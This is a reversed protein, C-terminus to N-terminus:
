HEREAYSATNPVGVEQGLASAFPVQQGADFLDRLRCGIWQQFRWTLYRTAIEERSEPARWLTCGAPTSVWCGIGWRELEACREDSRPVHPVLIASEGAFWRNASAQFLVERSASLKAEIAILRRIDLLGALPRLAWQTGGWTVVEEVLGSEVLAAMRRAAERGRLGLLRDLTALDVPATHHALFALLKCHHATLAYRVPPWGVCCAPDYLALVIDPYGSMIQPERFLAVHRGALWPGACLQGLFRTVLAEEPGPTPRRQYYGIAPDRVAFPLLTALADRQDDIPLQVDVM